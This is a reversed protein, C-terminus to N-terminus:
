AEPHAVQKQSANRKSCELTSKRSNERFCRCIKEGELKTRAYWNVPAPKDEEEYAKQSDGNFVYDTSILVMKAGNQNCAEVVNSTGEVNIRFAEDKNKECWDVNIVAAAHVVVDPRFGSVVDMVEKWDTVDMKKIKGSAKSSTGLVDFGLGPLMKMMKKGLLGSAGTILLRIKKNKKEM